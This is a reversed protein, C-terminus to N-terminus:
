NKQATSTAWPIWAVPNLCALHIECKVKLLALVKANHSLLAVSGIYTVKWTPVYIIQGKVPIENLNQNKNERLRKEFGFHARLLWWGLCIIAQSFFWSIVEHNIMLHTTTTFHVLFSSINYFFLSISIMQNQFNGDKKPAKM